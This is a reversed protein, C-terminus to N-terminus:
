NTYCNQNKEHILELRNNDKLSLFVGLMLWFLYTFPIEFWVPIFMAAFHIGIFTSLLYISFFRIDQNKSSCYINRLKLVITIIFVLYIFFGLLGLETQFFFYQSENWVQKASNIKWTISTGIGLGFPYRILRQYGDILANLHGKAGYDRLNISSQIYLVSKYFLDRLFFYMGTSIVMIFSISLMLYRFINKRVFFTILIVGALFGLWASRTFSLFLSLFSISFLFKDLIGSNKNVLIRILYFLTVTMSIYGVALPSLVISYSRVPRWQGAYSEGLLGGGLLDTIRFYKYFFNKFLFFELCGIIIVSLWIFNIAKFLTKANDFHLMSLYGLLFIFIFKYGKELGKFAINFDKFSLLTFIILMLLFLSSILFILKNFFHNFHKTIASYYEYIFPIFLILYGLPLYVKLFTSPLISYITIVCFLVLGLFRHKIFVFLYICSLIAGIAYIPTIIFLQATFSSIILILILKLNNLGM